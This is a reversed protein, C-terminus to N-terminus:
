TLPSTSGKVKKQEDISLVKKEPLENVVTRRKPKETERKKV